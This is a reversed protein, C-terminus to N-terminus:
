YEGDVVQCIKYGLKRGMNVVRKRDEFIVFINYNEQIKKWLEAKVINDKRKDGSSRMYLGDYKIMHKELWKETDERCIEDRGTCIIVDTEINRGILTAIDRIKLDCNDSIVKTYDYPSRNGNIHALTGDLDFVYCDKKKYEFEEFKCTNMTVELDNNYVLIEERINSDMLKKFKNYQKSIVDGGIYKTRSFDRNICEDIDTDFIHLEIPFGFMKYKYIYSKSLHTNDAIVDFGKELASWVQSDFFKTVIDERESTDDKYYENYTEENFGFLSMRISDRSVIVTNKNKAVYDKAFTSKGSGSVGVLVIIKNM